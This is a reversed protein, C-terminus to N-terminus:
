VSKTRERTELPSLDSSVGRQNREKTKTTTLEQVFYDEVIDVSRKRMRTTAPLNKFAVVCIRSVQSAAGTTYSQKPVHESTKPFEEMLMNYEESLSLAMKSYANEPHKNFTLCNDFMLTYDAKCEETSLYSGKNLLTKITGMDMPHKIMECYHPINWKVTDVPDHFIRSDM